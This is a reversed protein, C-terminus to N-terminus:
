PGRPDVDSATKHRVSSNLKLLAPDSSVIGWVDQWGFLADSPLRGFIARVLNLDEEADVTWRYAGLAEECQMVAIRFGTTSQGTSLRKGAPTLHVGKYIYPM